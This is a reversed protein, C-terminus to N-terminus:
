FLFDVEDFDSARQDLLRIRGGAYEVITDAGSQFIDLEAFSRPGSDFAIFDSPQEFDTVTDLGGRLAFAFVDAGAGGTLTDAGGGGQLDDDGAAGLLRDAGGGGEMTEAGAGGKMLDRGSGGSLTDFGAGGILSDAGAGGILSDDGALGQLRDAGGGGDLTDSGAGGTQRDAAATGAIRRGPVAAGGDGNEAAWETIDSFARTSIFAATASTSFIGAVFPEGNRMVFMPSGSAGAWELGTEDTYDHVIVLGDFFETGTARIMDPEGFRTEAFGPYGVLELFLSGGPRVAEALVGFGEVVRGIPRPQEVTLVAYDFAVDQDSLLGDGDPDAPFFARDSARFSGFPEEGEDYGPIVEISRVAGDFRSDEVVHAATLVDNPGIVVGTGRSQAGNAYTVFISVISRFPDDTSDAVEEVFPM